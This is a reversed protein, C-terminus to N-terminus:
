PISTPVSGEITPDITDATLDDTLMGTQAFSVGFVCMRWSMPRATCSAPPSATTAILVRFAMTMSGSNALGSRLM